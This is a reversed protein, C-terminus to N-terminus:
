IVGILTYILLKSVRGGETDGEEVGERYADGKERERGIETHGYTHEHTNHTHTCTYQTHLM